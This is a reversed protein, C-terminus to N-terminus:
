CQTPDTVTYNFFKYKGNSKEHRPVGGKWGYSLRRLQEAAANAEKETPYYSTTLVRQKTPDKANVRLEIKWMTKTTELTVSAAVTPDHTLM